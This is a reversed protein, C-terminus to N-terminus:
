FYEQYIEKVRVPLYSLLNSFRSRPTFKKDLVQVAEVLLGCCALYNLARDGSLLRQRMKPTLLELNAVKAMKVPMGIVQELLELFGDLRVTRGSIYLAAKEPLGPASIALVNPKVADRIAEAIRRSALSIVRVVQNQSLTIYDNDKKIMIEKDSSKTETSDNHSNHPKVKAQIRGYSVKVEEALSRTLNLSESLDATLDEGGCALTQYNLLKAGNFIAIQVADKGVDCLINIGKKQHPNFIARSLALGSLTINNLKLGLRNFIQVITDVYAAKACILYSNVELKHGYLGLPNIVENENDLTYSLSECHLIEEELSSCLVQAQNEVRQVDVKTVSKNGREALAIVAQSHKAIIDESAVGLYVSKVKIGSKAKLNNLLKSIAAVLGEADKLQGRSIGVAPVSDWWINQLQRGKFSGLCAAIKSSGFDIGCIYKM